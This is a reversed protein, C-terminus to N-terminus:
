KSQSAAWTGLFEYNPIYQRLEALAAEQSQAGVDFARFTKKLARAVHLMEYHLRIGNPGDSGDVTFTRDAHNVIVHFVLNGSIASGGPTDTRTAPIM